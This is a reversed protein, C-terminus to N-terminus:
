AEYLSGILPILDDFPQKESPNTPDSDSGKELHPPNHSLRLETGLLLLAAIRM